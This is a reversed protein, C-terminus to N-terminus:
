EKKNIFIDIAKETAKEALRKLTTNEVRFLIIGIGLYLLVEKTNTNPEIVEKIAFAWFVLGVINTIINKFNLNKM